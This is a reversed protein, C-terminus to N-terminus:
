YLVWKRASNYRVLETLLSRCLVLASLSLWRARGLIGTYIPYPHKLGVQRTDDLHHLPISDRCTGSADRKDVEGASHSVRQQLPKVGFLWRM